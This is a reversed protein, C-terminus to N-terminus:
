IMLGPAICFLYELWYNILVDNQGNMGSTSKKVDNVFIIGGPM